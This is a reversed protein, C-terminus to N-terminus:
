GYVLTWLDLYVFGINFTFSSLATGGGDGRCRRGFTPTSGACRSLAIGEGGGM